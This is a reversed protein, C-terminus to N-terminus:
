KSFGIKTEVEIIKKKALERARNAGTELVRDLEGSEIVERYRTQIKELTACVVDAVAKKFTGYGSNLFENEIEQLSKNTLCSYITMLNSIGPKNTADYRVLNESDTVAGM